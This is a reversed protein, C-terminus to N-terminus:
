MSRMDATSRRLYAAFSLFSALDFPPARQLGPRGSRTKACIKLIFSPYFHYVYLFEPVFEVRRGGSKRAAPDFLGHEFLRAIQVRLAAREDALGLSELGPAVRRRLLDALYGLLTAVDGGGLLLHALHAVPDRLDVALERRDLVVQALRKEHNWVYGGGLNRRAHVAGGVDDHALHALPFVRVELNEVM